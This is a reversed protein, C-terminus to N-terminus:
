KDGEEMLRVMSSLRLRDEVVTVVKNDILGLDEGTPYNDEGEKYHILRIGDKEVGKCIANFEESDEGVGKDLVFYGTVKGVSEAGEGSVWETYDEYSEFGIVERGIVKKLEGIVTDTTRGGIYVWM